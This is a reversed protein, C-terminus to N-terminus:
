CDPQRQAVGVHFRGNAVEKGAILLHAIWMEGSARPLKEIRMLSHEALYTLDARVMDKSVSALSMEALAQQLVDENLNYGLEDLTRLIALRRQETVVRTLNMM